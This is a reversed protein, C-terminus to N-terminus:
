WSRPMSTNLIMAACRRQRRFAELWEKEGGNGRSMAMPIENEIGRKITKCTMMKAYRLQFFSSDGMSGVKTLTGGFLKVTGLM